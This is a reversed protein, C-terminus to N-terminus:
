WLVLVNYASGAYRPDSPQLPGAHELIDRFTWTDLEGDPEAQHQREILDSLENYAVIEEYADDGCSVLFKINQHNEADRDLIKRVVKARIRSGDEQDRLYTLGVLEEPAFSPLKMSEPDVNMADSLSSLVPQQSSEGSPTSTAPRANLNPFLPDKAPRVNSRFLLQQTDNTLIAYTLFDGKKPSVDIWRGLKEQHSVPDDYFVEQWFHFTLYPSVDTVEGTHITHPIEGHAAVLHNLLGIVFLTCLLWFKPPCGVRDMINSSLRKVDQIRREINNQWEMHPESQADKIAYLRLISQVASGIEAKANDSKLGFMAGHDRLFDELTESMHSESALPYGALFHSDIGGYLQLMCCGGHGPIGDDHAPTDSFITDTSFWENLRRVNAAPFRSKFHKRFPYHVTARYYQTTKDLTAKIRDTPVWGFNPRLVDLDPLRPRVTQPFCSLKTVTLHFASVAM